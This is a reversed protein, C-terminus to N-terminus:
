LVALLIVTDRTQEKEGSRLEEFPPEVNLTQEESRPEKWCFEKWRPEDADSPRDKSRANVKM